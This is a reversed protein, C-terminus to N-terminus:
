RRNLMEERAKRLIDQEEETLSNIGDRSLKALIREVDRVSGAQEPKCVTTRVKWQNPISIKPIHGSISATRGKLVSLPDWHVLHKAFLKMFLYGAAFGLIHALYSTASASNTIQSFVEIVIYVVALTKLKVPFPVLLLRMPMDPLIMATAIIVGMVAGSAGYLIYFPNNWNCVFWLLNGLIGATLYLFLFIKRGLVPASLGGFIYLGFMNFLMHGFGAHLFLATFLRWIEFHKVGDVSLAFTSVLERGPLVHQILFVIFNVVILGFLSYIGGRVHEQHEKFDQGSYQM